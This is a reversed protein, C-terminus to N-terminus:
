LSELDKDIDQFEADLDGLDVEDLQQQIEQTTDGEIGAPEETQQGFPIVGQQWFWFLLVAVVAIGILLVINKTNM